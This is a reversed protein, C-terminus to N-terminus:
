KKVIFIAIAELGVHLAIASPLLMEKVKVGTTELIRKSHDKVEKNDVHYLFFVCESTEFKSIVDKSGKVLTKQFTRGKGHKKLAGEEFSIMPVIKLMSAMSAVKPGVRGGKVLWDLSHPLLIAFHDDKTRNLEELINEIDMGDNAMKEAQECRIINIGALGHSDFVHINPFDKAFMTLNSIQSSLGSSLPYVIVEDFEKSMREFEKLVEAPSSASTRVETDLTLKDYVGQMNIDIGDAYDVKDLFIHLPLFGWGREEAEKKSLGSSSDIIIGLKM